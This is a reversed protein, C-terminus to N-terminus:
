GVKMKDGGAGMAGSQIAKQMKSGGEYYRPAWIGTFPEDEKPMRWTRVRSSDMPVGILARPQDHTETLYYDGSEEDVYRMTIGRYIDRWEDDHGLGYLIEAKGEVLVKRYVGQEEDITVAVRPDNQINAWFESYKRPTIVISGNRYLFWVPVVSPSGDTSVTAIRAIHGRDQLFTDREEESLRPM